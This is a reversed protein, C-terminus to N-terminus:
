SILSTINQTVPPPAKLPRCAFYLLDGISVSVIYKWIIINVPNKGRFFNRDKRCIKTKKLDLKLLKTNSLRYKSYFFSKADISILLYLDMITYIYTAVKEHNKTLTVTRIKKTVSQIHICLDKFAFCFLDALVFLNFISWYFPQIIYVCVCVYVCVYVCVCMCMM